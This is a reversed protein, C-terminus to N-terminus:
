TSKSSVRHVGQGVCRRKMQWMYGAEVEGRPPYMAIPEDHHLKAHWFAVSMDCLALVRTHQGRKNKISAARSIIIKICKLLVTGAFTDFRIGHAVEIAVLRGRVLQGDPGQKMEDLWHCREKKGRALPILVREFLQHRVIAECETRRGMKVLYWALGTPCVLFSETRGDQNLEQCM